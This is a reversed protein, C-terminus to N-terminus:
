PKPAKRGKGGGNVPVEVVPSPAPNLVRAQCSIGLAIRQKGIHLIIRHQPDVVSPSSTPASQPFPIVKNTM